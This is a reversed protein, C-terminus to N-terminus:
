LLIEKATIERETGALISAREIVNRLERVNGPWDHKYLAEIARATVTVGPCFKTAFFHALSTVDQQRDRLPALKIPFVALRYYLDERFLKDKVMTPLAANTAAVVRVDVRLNDNSGLRQVEGQEVFRLIKSQLSLPMDGIEDLFLTGGHAAHIRGIRSQMAGTFAGKAYGFLEAELLAEPIAACNVVIFPSKQRPSIMHIAQAILDKGTGSEGTILVTTDRPAVMHVLAYANQMVPSDGIMGRLGPGAKSRRLYETPTVAPKVSVAATGQYLLEALQSAFPTPSSSGVLVHGTNANMTLIEIGPYRQRVMGCFEAPLLDPLLPDLLLVDTGKEAHLLELAESGSQAEIVEWRM